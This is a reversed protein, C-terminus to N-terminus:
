LARRGSRRFLLYVCLKLATRYVDYYSRVGQEGILNSETLKTKYYGVLLVSKAYTLASNKLFFFTSGM